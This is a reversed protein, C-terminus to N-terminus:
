SDQRGIVTTREGASTRLLYSHDRILLTFSLDPFKRAVNLLSLLLEQPHFGLFKLAQKCDHKM